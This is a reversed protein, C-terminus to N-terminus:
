ELRYTLGLSFRPQSKAEDANIYLFDASLRIGWREGVLHDVGVGALGAVSWSESEEVVRFNFIPVSVTSTVRARGALAHVFLRTKGSSLHCRLGGLYSFFSADDDNPSGDHRALDGELALRESLGFALAGNWGHFLEGDSSLEDPPVPDAQDTGTVADGSEDPVTDVRDWGTTTGTDGKPYRLGDTM